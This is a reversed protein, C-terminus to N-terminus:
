NHGGSTAGLPGCPAFALGSLINAYTCTNSTKIVSYETSSHTIAFNVFLALLHYCNRSRLEDSAPLISPLNYCDGGYGDVNPM